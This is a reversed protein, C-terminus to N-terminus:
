RVVLGRLSRGLRYSYGGGHKRRSEERRARARMGPTPPGLEDGPQELPIALWLGIYVLIGVGGFLTAVIFLLRFLAPDREAYRGLGGCVGTFWWDERSRRRVRVRYPVNEIAM